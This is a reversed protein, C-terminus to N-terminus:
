MAGAKLNLVVSHPLRQACAAAVDAYIPHNTECFVEAAGVMSKDIMAPFQKKVECGPTVGYFSPNKSIASGQLLVQVAELEKASVVGGLFCPNATSKQYFSYNTEERNRNSKPAPVQWQEEEECAQSDNCLEQLDQSSSSTQTERTRKSRLGSAM